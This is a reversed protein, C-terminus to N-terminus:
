SRAISLTGFSFSSVFLPLVFFAALLHDASITPPTPHLFYVRACVCIFRNVYACLLTCSLDNDPMVRLLRSLQLLSNLSFAHLLFSCFPPCLFLLLATFLPPSPPPTQDQDGLHLLCSLNSKTPMCKRAFVDLTLVDKQVNTIM